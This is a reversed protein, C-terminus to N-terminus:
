SLAEVIGKQAFRARRANSAAHTIAFCYEFQDLLSLLEVHRLFGKGLQTALGDRAKAVEDAECGCRERVKWGVRGNLLGPKVRSAAQGRKGQRVSCNQQPFQGRSLFHSSQFRVMRRHADAETGGSVTQKRHMRWISSRELFLESTRDNMEPLTRRRVIPAFAFSQSQGASIVTKHTIVSQVDANGICSGTGDVQEIQLCFAEDMMKVNLLLHRVQRGSSKTRIM